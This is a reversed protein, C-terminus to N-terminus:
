YRSSTDVSLNFYFVEYEETLNSFHSREDESSYNKQSAAKSNLESDISNGVVSLLDPSIYVQTRQQDHSLQLSEISTGVKLLEELSDGRAKINLLSSTLPFNITHFFVLISLCVM